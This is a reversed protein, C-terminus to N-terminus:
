RAADRGATPTIVGVQQAAEFLNTRVDMEFAKGRYLDRKESIEVLFGVFLHQALQHLGPEIRQRAAARFDEGLAHALLDGVIRVFAIRVAIQGDMAQRM